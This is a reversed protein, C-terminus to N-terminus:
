AIKGAHGNFMTMQVLLNNLSRLEVAQGPQGIPSKQCVPQPLRHDDRLPLALQKATQQMSRSRKLCILSWRPYSSPSAKKLCTLSRSFRDIRSISVGPAGPPRDLEDKTQEIKRFNRVRGTNATPQELVQACGKRILPWESVMVALMPM